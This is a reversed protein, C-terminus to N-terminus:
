FTPTLIWPEAVHSLLYHHKSGLGLDHNIGPVLMISPSFQDRFATASRGLYVM